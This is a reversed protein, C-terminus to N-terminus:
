YYKALKKTPFIEESEMWGISRRKIKINPNKNENMGSLDNFPNTEPYKYDNEFSEDTQHLIEQVKGAEHLRHRNTRMINQAFAGPIMKKLQDEVTNPDLKVLM